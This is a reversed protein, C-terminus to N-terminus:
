VEGIMAPSKEGQDFFDRPFDQLAPARCYLHASVLVAAAQDRERGRVLVGARELQADAIRRAAVVQLDTVPLVQSSQSVSTSFRRQESRSSRSATIEPLYSSVKQSSGPSLCCERPM